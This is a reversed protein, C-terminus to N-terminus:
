LYGPTYVHFSAEIVRANEWIPNAIWNTIENGM